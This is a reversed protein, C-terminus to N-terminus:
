CSSFYDGCPTWHFSLPSCHPHQPVCSSSHGDCDDCVTLPLRHPNVHVCSSSCSPPYRLAEHACSLSCDGCLTWPLSRSAQLALLAVPLSSSFFSSSCCFCRPLDLCALIKPHYQQSDEHGREDDEQGHHCLSDTSRM